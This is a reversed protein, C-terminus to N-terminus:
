RFQVSVIRRPLSALILYLLTDHNHVLYTLMLYSGKMGYRIGLLEQAVKLINITKAGVRTIGETLGKYYLEELFTRPGINQDEFRAWLPLQGEAIAQTESAEILKELVSDVATLSERESRSMLNKRLLDIAM